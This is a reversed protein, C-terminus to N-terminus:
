STWSRCVICDCDNHGVSDLNMLAQRFDCVRSKIDSESGQRVSAVLLRAARHADVRAQILNNKTKM